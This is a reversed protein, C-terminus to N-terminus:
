AGASVRRDVAPCQSGKCHITNNDIHDRLSVTTGRQEVLLATLTKNMEEQRTDSRKQYYVIIGLMMTTALSAWIWLLDPVNTPMIMPEIPLTTAQLTELV